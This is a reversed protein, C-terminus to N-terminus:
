VSGAKRLLELGEETPVIYTDVWECPRPDRPGRTGGTQWVERYTAAGAEVLQHPEPGATLPVYAGGEADRAAKLWRAQNQSLSYLKM